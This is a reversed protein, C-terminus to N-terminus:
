SGDRCEECPKVSYETEPVIGSDKCAGCRYTRTRTEAVRKRHRDQVSELFEVCGDPVCDSSHDEFEVHTGQSGYGAFTGYRVQGYQRVIVRLGLTPDHAYSM